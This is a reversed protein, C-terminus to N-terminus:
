LGFGLAWVKFGSGKCIIAQNVKFGIYGHLSLKSLPFEVDDDRLYAGSNM